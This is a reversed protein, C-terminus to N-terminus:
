ILRGRAAVMVRVRKRALANAIARGIGPNGGTVPVAREEFQAPM